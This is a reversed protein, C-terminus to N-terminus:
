RHVVATPETTEVDVYSEDDEQEQQQNQDSTSGVLVGFSQQDEEDDHKVSLSSPSALRPRNQAAVLQQWVGGSPNMMMLSSFHDSKNMLYNYYSYPHFPLPNLYPAWLRSGGNGVGGTATANWVLSSYDPVAVPDVPKSVIGNLRALLSQHHTSSPHFQQANQHYIPPAITEIAGGVSTTSSSSSTSSLVATAPVSIAPINKIPDYKARKSASPHLSHHQSSATALHQKVSKGNTKVHQIETSKLTVPEQSGSPNATTSKSSHNTPTNGSSSGTVRKRSGGNFMAKVDEWAFM